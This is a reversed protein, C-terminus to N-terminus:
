DKKFYNNANSKDKQLFFFLSFIIIAPLVSQEKNIIYIISPILSIILVFIYKIFKISLKQEKFNLLNKIGLTIPYIYILLWLAIVLIFFIVIFISEIISTM